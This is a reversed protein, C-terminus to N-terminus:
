KAALVGAVAIRFLGPEGAGCSMYRVVGQRDIVVLTPVGAIAYSKSNDGTACVALPYNLQM